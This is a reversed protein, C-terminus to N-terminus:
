SWVGSEIALREIQLAIDTLRAHTAPTDSLSFAGIENQLRAAVIGKLAARRWDLDKISALAFVAQRYGILTPNTFKSHSRSSGLTQTGRAWATSAIGYAGSVNRYLCVVGGILMVPFYSLFLREPTTAASVNRTQM